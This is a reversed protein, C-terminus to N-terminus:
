CQKINVTIRFLETDYSVSLFFIIWSNTDAFPRHWSEVLLIAELSWPLARKQQVAESVFDTPVLNECLIYFHKIIILSDWWLKRKLVTM